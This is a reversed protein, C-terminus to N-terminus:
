YNGIASERRISYDKPYSFTAMVRDIGVDKGLEKLERLQELDTVGWRFLSANGGRRTFENTFYLSEVLDTYEKSGKAPLIPSWPYLNILVNGTIEGLKAYDYGYEGRAGESLGSEPDILVEVTLKLPAKRDLLQDSDRAADQLLRIGDHVVNSRWEHWKAHYTPNEIIYNYTLRNPEQGVLPAFDKRCRDCFCFHDRIFGAGLLLIEDIPYSGIEKIIEAGYQWFEERNPCIQHSMVSGGETMTQYKPDKGFWGDTYFDMGVATHIDLSHTLDVLEEFFQTHEEEVPATRSPYLAHGTPAKGVIGISTMYSAYTSIFEKASMDVDDPGLLILLKQMFFERFNQTMPM